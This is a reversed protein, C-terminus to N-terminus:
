PSTLCDQMGGKITRVSNSLKDDLAPLNLSSRTPKGTEAGCRRVDFLSIRFPARWFGGGFDDFLSDVERCL